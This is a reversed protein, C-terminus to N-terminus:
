KLCQKSSLPDDKDFRTTNISSYFAVKNSNRNIVAYALKVGWYNIKIGHIIFERKTIDINTAEKWRDTSSLKYFAKDFFYNDEIHFEFEKNAFVKDSFMEEPCEIFYDKSNALSPLFILIVLILSLKKM